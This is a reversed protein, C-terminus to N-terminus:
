ELKEKVSEIFRSMRARYFTEFDGQAGRQKWYVYLVARLRQSPSKDDRFEEAPEQPLEIEASQSPAFILWGLQNRLSFLDATKEADLEQTEFVLKVSNVLSFGILHFLEAIYFPFPYVFTFLPYGFGFSLDPVFRPPFQLMKIARDMEFLWGIHLDDSVGFYGKVFLYRVAPISILVVIIKIYRSIIDRLKNM